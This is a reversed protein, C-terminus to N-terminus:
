PVPCIGLSIQWLFSGIIIMIILAKALKQVFQM